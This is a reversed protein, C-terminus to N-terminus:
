VIKLSKKERSRAKLFMNKTCLGIPRRLPKCPRGVKPYKGQNTRESSYSDVSIDLDDWIEEISKYIKKRFAV